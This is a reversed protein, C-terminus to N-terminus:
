KEQVGITIHCNRKLIRHYRGRAVARGKKFTPAENVFAETVVLKKKDWGKNNTANSIAASVAKSVDEAVNKNTFKLLDITKLAEEGRIMDVVLRAKRASSRVYNSKSYVTEKTM